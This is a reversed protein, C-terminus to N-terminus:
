ALVGPFVSIRPVEQLRSSSRIASASKSSQTMFSTCCSFSLDAAGGAAELQESDSASKSSQIMFEM